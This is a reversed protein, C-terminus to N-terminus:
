VKAEVEKALDYLLFDLLVAHVKGAAEPHSTIIQRRMLEVAWISCGRLEIEWSHGHPIEEHRRIRASLPPSYQLMSLNYLMQPVRYDAFMTLQEIDDFRGYGKGDFAAWLDAVFIQARKLFRVRRDEFRTEDRFCPFYEALMNVLKGASHDAQEILRVVSRDPRRPRTLTTMSAGSGGTSSGAAPVFASGVIESEDRHEATYATESAVELVDSAATSVNKPGDAPEPEASAAVETEHSRPGGTTVTDDVGATAISPDDYDVEALDDADEDRVGFRERLVKAAEELAGCRKGMMPMGEGTEGRFVEGVLAELGEEEWGGLDTLDRGEELGRRLGAIMGAYGTWREGRWEVQWREKAPLESWFSFNLLDMTFIFRVMAEEDWGEDGLHPHLPHDNWSQASYSRSTFQTYLEAAASQTGSM